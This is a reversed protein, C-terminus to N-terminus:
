PACRERHPSGAVAMLDETRESAPGAIVRHSKTRGAFAAGLMAPLDALVALLRGHPALVHKVRSYPANGV